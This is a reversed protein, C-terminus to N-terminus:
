RNMFLTIHKKGKIKIGKGVRLREDCDQCRANFSAGNLLGEFSTTYIPEGDKKIYKVYECISCTFKNKKKM